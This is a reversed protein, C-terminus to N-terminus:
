QHDDGWFFFLASLTSISGGIFWIGAPEVLRGAIHLPSVRSYVMLSRNNEHSNYFIRVLGILTFTRCELCGIYKSTPRTCRQCPPYMHVRKCICRRFRFSISSAVDKYSFMVSHARWFRIRHWTKGRFFNSIRRRAAEAYPHVTVLALHIAIGSLEVQISPLRHWPYEATRRDIIWVAEDIYSRYWGGGQRKSKGLSDNGRLTWAGMRWINLYQSTRRM